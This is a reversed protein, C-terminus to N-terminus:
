CRKITDKGAGGACTDNAGGGILRDRGGQGLLKDKGGGGKVKDNGGMACVLDNGGGANITDKASSGVIVDRQSTGNFIRALGPRPFITAQRGNCTPVPATSAPPNIVPPVNIASQVVDVNASDTDNDTGGLSDTGTVSVTNQLPDGDGAVVVHSCSYTWTEGPDLKVDGDTDGGTFAPASNCKPDSIQVTLATDGPNTLQFSYNVTDGVHTQTQQAQKDVEIDRRVVYTKFALDDAPVSGWSGSPPSNTTFFVGGGAYPNATSSGSWAYLNGGGSTTSYAVIAYQTGAVVSAPAPFNISLFAAAGPGPVSAQPVSQSALVTSGPVGGPADRLEVSLDATPTGSKQLFLDVQDLGGSLGATFTQALSQASDIVNGPGSGDPQQQDLTGAHAAGPALLPAACAVTVAALVAGRVRSAL